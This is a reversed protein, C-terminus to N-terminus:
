FIIDGVAELPATWNATASAKIDSAKHTVGSFPTNCTTTEHTTLTTFTGVNTRGGAAKRAVILFGKFQGGTLTVQITDGSKYSTQSLSISFPSPNTVTSTAGHAPKFSDSDCLYPPAGSSYCYVYDFTLLFICYFKLMNYM